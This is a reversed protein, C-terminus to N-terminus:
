GPRRSLFRWAVSYDAGEDVLGSTFCVDIPSGGLPFGNGVTLAWLNNATEKRWPAGFRVPQRFVKITGDGSNGALPYRAFSIPIAIMAKFCVAGLNVHFPEAPEPLPKKDDIVSILKM